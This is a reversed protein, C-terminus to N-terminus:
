RKFSIKNRIWQRYKLIKLILKAIDNFLTYVKEFSICVQFVPSNYIELEKGAIIENPVIFAEKAKDILDSIEKSIYGSEKIENIIKKDYFM